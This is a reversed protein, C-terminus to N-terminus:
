NSILYHNLNFRFIIVLLLFMIVGAVVLTFGSILTPAAYPEWTKDRIAKKTLLMGLVYALVVWFVLSLFLFTEISM